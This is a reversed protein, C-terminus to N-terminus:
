KKFSRPFSLTFTKEESLLEEIDIRKHFKLLNQRREPTFTLQFISVRFIRLLYLLFLLLYSAHYQLSHCHMITTIAFAHYEISYETAQTKYKIYRVANPSM